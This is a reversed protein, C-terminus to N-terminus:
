VNRKHRGQVDEDLTDYIDGLSATWTKHIETGTGSNVTSMEEERAIYQNVESDSADIPVYVPNSYLEIQKSVITPKDETSNMLNTIYTESPMAWNIRATGGRLGGDAIGIVMGDGTLIPAGSHGPQITSSIRFIKAKPLPYGQIELDQKLKHGTILDSLTPNQTLSMSFKIEDGQMTYVNHPYGWIYYTGTSQPSAKQTQLPKLELDKDLKLLALDAEKLVRVLQATTSKGNPAYVEIREVGAVSHLTTIVWQPNNWVWGTSTNVVKSPTGQRDKGIYSTEIKVVSKASNEGTQPIAVIPSLLLLLLVTFRFM